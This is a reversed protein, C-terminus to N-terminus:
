REASDACRESFEGPRQLRTVTWRDRLRVDGLLATTRYASRWPVIHDDRSAYVYAPMTVRGLDISEGLM